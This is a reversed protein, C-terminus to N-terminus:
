GGDRVWKRAEAVLEEPYGSIELIRIANRTTLPGHKLLHDFHLTDDKVDESFHYLDYEDALMAALEIDHTAVFVLNDLQNLYSLIARAAAIREVTNTGKFVEDLIFLHQHGDRSSRILEGMVNVEEFYYSKGQLLDDDIRISSSVKLLPAEFSRAFCTYITQALLSNIAVTRLFSTKGSMNSGTILASKGDLSITNVTCNEILPHYIEVALLKKGTKLFAPKCISNGSSRLSAVSIAADVSGTYAFLERISQQKHELEKILRFFTIVEVLLLAKVVQLLYTAAQALDDKVGGDGLTLFRLKRRFGRLSTVADEAKEKEFPLDM